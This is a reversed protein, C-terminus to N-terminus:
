SWSTIKQNQNLSLVRRFIFYDLANNFDCVAAATVGYCNSIITLLCFHLAVVPSYFWRLCVSVAPIQYGDWFTYPLSIQTFKLEASRSITGFTSVAKIKFSQVTLTPELYGFTISCASRKLFNTAIIDVELQCPCTVPVTTSIQLTIDPVSEDFEIIGKVVSYVNSPSQFYGVDIDTWWLSLKVFNINVFQIQEHLRFM